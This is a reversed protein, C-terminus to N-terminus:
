RLSFSLSVGQSWSTLHWGGRRAILAGEKGNGMPRLADFRRAVLARPWRSSALVSSTGDGKGRAWAHKAALSPPSSDVRFKRLLWGALYLRPGDKWPVLRGLRPVRAAVVHESAAGGDGDAGGDGAQHALATNVSDEGLDKKLKEIQYAQAKIEAAMLESVARLETPDEPLSKFTARM